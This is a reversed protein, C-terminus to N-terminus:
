SAQLLSLVHLGSVNLLIGKVDQVAYVFHKKALRNHLADLHEQRLGGAKTQLLARNGGILLQDDM